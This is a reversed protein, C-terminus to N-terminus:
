MLPMIHKVKAGVYAGGRKVLASRGEPLPTPGDRCEM